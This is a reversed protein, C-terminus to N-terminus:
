LIEDPSDKIAVYNITQYPILLVYGETDIFTCLNRGASMREVTEVALVENNRLTVTFPMFPARRLLRTLDERTM